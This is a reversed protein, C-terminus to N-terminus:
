GLVAPLEFRAFVDPDFTTVEAIWGEQVRLVDLSLARLSVSESALESM